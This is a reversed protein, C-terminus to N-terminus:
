RGNRRRNNRRGNTVKTRTIKGPHAYGIPRFASVMCDATYRWRRQLKRAVLEDVTIVNAGKAQMQRISLDLESYNWAGCGDLIISVTKRRALLGLVIAKVEHEAVAGFVIFEGANLQTIFRDAKPNAFLDKSRQPFIVQQHRTFLDIPVSLTNDGAIYVRNPLLTFDLKSQGLTGEVCRPASGGSGSVEMIRHADMSSIVPAQNRKVWAVVRRLRKYLVDTELVPCAGKVDFFDLQTNLDVLVCPYAPANKGGYM